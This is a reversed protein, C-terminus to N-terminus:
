LIPLMVVAYSAVDTVSAVQQQLWVFHRMAVKLSACYKEGDIFATPYTLNSVNDVYDIRVYVLYGLPM